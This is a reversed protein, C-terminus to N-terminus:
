NMSIQYAELLDVDIEKILECIVKFHDLGNDDLWRQADKATDAQIRPGAYIWENGYTDFTRIETLWTTM